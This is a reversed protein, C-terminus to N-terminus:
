NCFTAVLIIMAEIGAHQRLYDRLFRCAQYYQVKVTNISIQLKSAVEENSLGQESRLMFVLRRQASLQRLGDRVVKAYDNLILTEETTTDAEPQTALHNLHRLIARKNDRILNLVQHRMATALYNRVSQSEDLQARNIWLKLYVEQLADEALAPDKVYQIAISYLYHYYRRFLTEFAVEDHQKLRLALEKDTLEM